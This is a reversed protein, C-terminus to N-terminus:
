YKGSLVLLEIYESKNDELYEAITNQGILQLIEIVGKRDFMNTAGVRRIYALEQAIEIKEQNIDM